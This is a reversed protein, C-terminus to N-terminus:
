WDKKRGSSRQNTRTDLQQKQLERDQGQIQQLLAPLEKRLQQKSKIQEVKEDWSQPKKEEKPKDQSGESEKPDKQKDEKSDQEQKQDQEKKQKQEDGQSGSKSKSSQEQEDSEGQGESNQQQNEESEQKEESESSQGSEQQKQNLIYVINERMKERDKEDLVGQHKYILDSAKAKDGTMLMLSLYNLFAARETDISEDTLTEEYVKLAMEHEGDRLLSEGLQVKLEHVNKGKELKQLLDLSQKSIKTEAEDEQAYAKMDQSSYAMVGLVLVFAQAVEKVKKVRFTPFLSLISNLIILIFFALILPFGLVPRYRMEGKSLRDNFVKEFFGLVDETPVNYSLAVWYKYLDHSRGFSKLWSEDLSSIVREGQYEKYGRFSGRQSRMPIPGGKSTGVGVVALAVEPPLSKEVGEATEEGDTFLLINGAIKEGEGSQERFYNVCEKLSISINSGASSLDTDELGSIRADLLDLDDTFSVLRKTTDSFLVVAIQHGVANRIFHRALFLSREFRNPRVDEVLMSSSADILIITKQDPVNTSIREEPGRLDLMSILLCLIALMFSASALRSKWARDHFWYLKVWSFYKKEFVHQGILLAAFLILIPILAQSYQFSM